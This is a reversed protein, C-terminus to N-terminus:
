GFSFLSLTSIDATQQGLYMRSQLTNEARSQIVRGHEIQELSIRRGFFESQQSLCFQRGLEALERGTQSLAKSSVDGLSHCLLGDDNGARIGSGYYQWTQCELEDRQTLLSVLHRKRYFLSNKSVRKVRDQGTHGSDTDPGCGSEEGLDGAAGEGRDCM